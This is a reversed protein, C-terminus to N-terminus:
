GVKKYVAYLLGVVGAVGLMSWWGAPSIAGGDALAVPSAVLGAVAAVTRMRISRNM